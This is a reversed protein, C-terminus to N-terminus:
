EDGWYYNYNATAGGSGGAIKYDVGNISISTLNPTETTAEPNAIPLESQLAIYEGALINQGKTFIGTGNNVYFINNVIDYLGITNSEYVVNNNTVQQNTYCPIFDHILTDNNYIKCYYLIAKSLGYSPKRAFLLLNSEAALNSASLTYTTTDDVKYTLTTGNYNMNVTHVTNYPMTINKSASGNLYICPTGNLYSVLLYNEDVGSSLMDIDGSTSLMNFKIDCAFGTGFKVGTDIYQTGTSEIYEVETYESPLRVEGIQPRVKFTKQGSILENKTLSVKDDIQTQLEQKAISVDEITAFDVGRYVNEGKLFVGTGSNTFFTSSVTDYLGIVEDSKRYCPIFQKILNDNGYLKLSYIKFKGYNADRRGIYLDSAISGASQSISKSTGNITFTLTSPTYDAIFKYRTNPTINAVTQKNNNYRFYFNKDSAVWSEFTTAGSATGFIANYDYAATPTFDFDIKWNTYKSTNWIQETTNIYQSGTLEVYEVEQYENPLTAGIGLKPRVDFSKIGYINEDGTKSVKNNLNETIVKNQVPNESELSLENDVDAGAKTDVWSYTDTTEDYSFRYFHNKVYTSTEDGDVCLYVSNVKYFGRQTIKLANTMQAQTIGGLPYDDIAYLTNDDITETELEELTKEKIEGAFEPTVDEWSTLNFRYFHNKLYTKGTGGDICMYVSNTQYFGSQSSTLANSMQENTIGGVPYDEFQYLNNDDISQQSIKNITGEVIKNLKDAM